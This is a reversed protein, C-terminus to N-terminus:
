VDPGQQGLRELCWGADLGRLDRVRYQAASQDQGRHRAHEVAVVTAGAALASRIGATSDEFVLSREPRVGLTHMALSYGAPHPKSHPYQGDGLVLEFCGLIGLQALYRRAQAPTSGTVLALRLQGRLARVLPVAGPVTPPAERLLAEYRGLARRGFREAGLGTEAGLEAFIAEWARGVFAGCRAGDLHLGAAAATERLAAMCAPETDVITGDLDFLVATDDRM